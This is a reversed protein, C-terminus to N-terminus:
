FTAEFPLRKWKYIFILKFDQAIEESTMKIKKWLITFIRMVAADVNGEDFEKLDLSGGSM